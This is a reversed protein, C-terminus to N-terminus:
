DGIRGMASLLKIDGTARQVAAQRADAEVLLRQAEDVKGIAKLTKAKARMALIEAMAEQQRQVLDSATLPASQMRKVWVRAESEFDTMMKEWLNGKPATPKTNARALAFCGQCLPVPRHRVEGIQEKCWRCRSDPAASVGAISNALSEILKFM